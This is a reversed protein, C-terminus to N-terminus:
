TSYNNTPRCTAASCILHHCHQQEFGAKYVDCCDVQCFISMLKPGATSVKTCIQPLQDRLVAGQLHNAKLTQKISRQVSRLSVSHPRLDVRLKCSKIQQHPRTDLIPQLVEM